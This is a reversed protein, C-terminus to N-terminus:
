AAQVGDTGFSVTRNKGNAKAHYLAQDAHRMLEEKSRTSSAPFTATGISVTIFHLSKDLRIQEVARRIREAEVVAGYGDTEPLLIAFEDGGYRAAVDSKRMAQIIAQAVRRLAQDGGDHGLTDNVKKFQDLDLMLYSLPRGYRQATAFCQELRIALSRHNLLGTLPDLAAQNALQANQERLRQQEALGLLANAAMKAATQCFLWEDPTFARRPRSTRLFLTGLIEDRYSIPIVLISCIQLGKFTALVERMRPDTTVDDILVSEGSTVAEAIEPYKALEIAFGASSPNEHTAVVKGRPQDKGVLIVSCRVVDVVQAIVKVLVALIDEHTKTSTLATAIDLLAVLTQSKGSEGARISPRSILHDYVFPDRTM